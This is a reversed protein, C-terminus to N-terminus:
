VVTADIADNKLIDAGFVAVVFADAIDYCIEKRRETGKNPGGKLIKTPWEFTKMEPRAMVWRLVQEKTGLVSKRDISCGVSKRTSIVNALYLPCDFQSKAIFSAIGNFRNLKAITGASSMRSRFSQLSEEVVVLDVIHDQEVRRLHDRLECSKTWLGKIKSMPIGYALVVRSSQPEETDIVCVGVNSTSVDLGLVKM